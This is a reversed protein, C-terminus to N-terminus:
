RQNRPYLNSSFEISWEGQHNLESQGLDVPRATAALRGGRWERELPFLRRRCVRGFRKAADRQAVRAVFVAVSARATWRPVPSECGVSPSRTVVDVINVSYDKCMAGARMEVLEVLYCSNM